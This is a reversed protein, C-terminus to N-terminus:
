EYYDVKVKDEKLVKALKRKISRTMTLSYATNNPVNCTYKDWYFYHNYGDTHRNLHYVLKKQKKAEPDKEWLRMTADWDPRLMIKNLSGDPNLGVKIKKKKIRVSGLRNPLNVEFNEFIMKDTVHKNVKRVIRSYTSKDVPNESLQKYLNYADDLRCHTPLRNKKGKRTREMM